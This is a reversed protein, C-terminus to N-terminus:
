KASGLLEIEAIQMMKEADSVPNRLAPFLVQYHKYAATNEFSIATANMSYRPWETAQAFDAIDGAAILTWPGDISDNSGSLEFKVPDREIADNATTFTLGTVVTSGVAPTVQIDAPQTAGKFHLFKTNVNDDIANAPFEAAPWDGDNPVGQVVDGPATVDSLILRQIDVDTLTRNYFRVEDILCTMLRSDEHDRGVRVLSDFNVPVHEAVNTFTQDVGNLYFKAKDPAITLAAFYWEGNPILLGTSVDWYQTTYLSIRVNESPHRESQHISTM